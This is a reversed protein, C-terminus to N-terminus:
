ILRRGAREGPVHADGGGLTALDDTMGFTSNTIGWVALLLPLKVSVIAPIFIFIAKIQLLSLSNCTGYTPCRASVGLQLAITGGM